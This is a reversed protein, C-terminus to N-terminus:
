KENETVEEIKPAPPPEIANPKPNSCKDLATAAYEADQREFNKLVHEPIEIDRFNDHSPDDSEEQILIQIANELPLERDGEFGEPISRHFERLIYYAGMDKM